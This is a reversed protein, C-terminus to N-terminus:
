RRVQTSTPFLLLLVRAEDAADFAVVVVPVNRGTGRTAKGMVTHTRVVRQMIQIEDHRQPMLRRRLVRRQLHVNTFTQRFSIHRPEGRADRHFHQHDFLFFRMSLRDGGTTSRNAMETARTAAATATLHVTVTVTSLVLVTSAVPQQQVLRVTRAAGAVTTPMVSVIMVTSAVAMTAATATSLLMSSSAVTATM